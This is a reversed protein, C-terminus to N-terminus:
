KSIEKIADNKAIIDWPQSYIVELMDDRKAGRKLKGRWESILGARRRETDDARNKAAERARYIKLWKRLDRVTVRWEEPKMNEEAAMGIAPVLEASNTNESKLYHEWVPIQEKSVQTGYMAELAQTWTIIM